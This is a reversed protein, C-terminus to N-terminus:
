FFNLPEITNEIREKAVKFYKEDMEIGIADRGELKSAIITSGIGMFPDLVIDGSNSSNTILTRMLAIPKETDHLNNGNEDKLKIIPINLIDPTDCFNIKPYSGKRFLLIYEYCGM